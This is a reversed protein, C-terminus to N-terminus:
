SQLLYFACWQWTNVFISTRIHLLYRFVTSFKYCKCIVLGERRHFEYNTLSSRMRSSHVSNDAVGDAAAAYIYRPPVTVFYWFVNHLSSSLLWLSLSICWASTSSSDLHDYHYKGIYWRSKIGKSSTHLVTFTCPEM